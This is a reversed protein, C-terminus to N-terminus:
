QRIACHGKQVYLWQSSGTCIAVTFKRYMYGSPVEQLYMYGGPVDQVYLWRSRGTCIAVPFTRYMYGSPVEQSSGTCVYLWQSRGTCVTVPFKRYVYGSPGVDVHKHTYGM